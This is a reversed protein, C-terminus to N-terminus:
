RNCLRAVLGAFCGGSQRRPHRPTEPMETRNTTGPSAQRTAEALAARTFGVDALCSNSFGTAKLEAATFGAVKLRELEIGERRLEIADYGASKLYQDAFRNMKIDSLEVDADELESKTFGAKLLLNVSAGANRLEIADFDADRLGAVTLKANILDELSFGAAKLETATFGAVKLRKLEIGAWRLVSADYGASKLYKDCFVDMKLDSLEVGAEELEWKKFRAQLLLAISVGADRLERADFSAKLASISLGSAQLVAISFGGDKLNAVAFGAAILEQAGFGADCQYLEASFGAQKLTALDIGTRHLKQVSYGASKLSSLDFAKCLVAHALDEATFNAAAMDGATFARPNLTALAKRDFDVFEMFKEESLEELKNVFAVSLFRTDSLCMRASIPDPRRMQGQAVPEINRAVFLPIVHSEDFIVQADGHHEVSSSQLVACIIMQPNQPDCFGWSLWAANLNATYIGVGHASGNAVGINNNQGPILLGNDFISRLDARTGHLAPCITLTKNTPAAAKMFGDQVRLAMQVPTLVVKPGGM